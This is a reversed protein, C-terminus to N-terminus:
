LLEFSSLRHLWAWHESSMKRLVRVLTTPKVKHVIDSLLVLRGGDRTGGKGEEREREGTEGEGKRRLVVVLSHAKPMRGSAM